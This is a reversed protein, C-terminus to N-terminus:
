GFLVHYPIIINVTYLLCRNVTRSNIIYIEFNFLYILFYIGHTIAVGFLIIKNLVDVETIDPVGLSIIGAVLYGTVNTCLCIFIRLWINIKIFTYTNQCIECKDPDPSHMRWTDLCEKHVHGDRCRCPNILEGSEMCIRCSDAIDVILMNSFLYVKNEVEIRFFSLIFM